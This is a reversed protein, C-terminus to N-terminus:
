RTNMECDLGKQTLFCILKKAISGIIYLLLFNITEVNDFGIPAADKLFGNSISERLGYAYVVEPLVQRKVYPTGTFNYCAVISTAEALM